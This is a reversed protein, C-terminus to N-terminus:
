VIVCFTRKTNGWGAVLVEKALPGGAATAAAESSLCIPMLSHTFNVPTALKLLAMDGM